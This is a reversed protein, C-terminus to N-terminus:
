AAMAVLYSPIPIKQEYFFTTTNGNDIKGQYLGSEVAFLPKEVTISVSVPAKVSPTDQSPFLERNLISEGQTFMYPYKKGATQEPTLWQVSTGKETTTFSILLTILDNKNYEKYIKLPVGNSLLEYQTDLIYDLEFGTDSDIVSNIQLSKTDLIIVEGEKLATFYIKIKGTIIKLNFDINFNIELNTQRIQEYNSFTNIDKSSCFKFILFLINIYLIHKFPVM